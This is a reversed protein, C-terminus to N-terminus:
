GFGNEVQDINALCHIRGEKGSTCGKFVALIYYQKLKVFLQVSTNLGNVSIYIPKMAISEESTKIKDKSWEEIRNKVYFTKGCGWKGTIM